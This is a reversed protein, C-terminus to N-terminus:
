RAGIRKVLLGLILVDREVNVYFHIVLRFPNERQYILRNCQVGIPLVLQCRTDNESEPM